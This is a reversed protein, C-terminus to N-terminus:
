RAGKGAKASKAVAVMIARLPMVRATVERVGTFLRQIEARNRESEFQSDTFGVVVGSKEPNLWTAPM